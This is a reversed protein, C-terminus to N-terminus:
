RARRCSSASASCASSPTLSVGLGSSLPPRREHPRGSGTQTLLNHKHRRVGRWWFLREEHSLGTPEDLAPGAPVAEAVREEGDVQEKRDPRERVGREDRSAAEEPRDHDRRGEDDELDDHVGAQDRRHRSGAAVVHPHRADEVARDAEDESGRAPPEDEPEPDRDVGGQADVREDLRDQADEAGAARGVPKGRLVPMKTAESTTMAMAEVSTATPM